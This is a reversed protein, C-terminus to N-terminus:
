SKASPEGPPPSKKEEPGASPETAPRSLVVAVWAILGLVVIATVAYLPRPDPM